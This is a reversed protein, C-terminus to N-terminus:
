GAGGISGLSEPAMSCAMALSRGVGGCPRMTASAPVGGHKRRSGALVCRLAAANAFIATGYLHSSLNWAWGFHLIRRGRV